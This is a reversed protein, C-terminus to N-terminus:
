MRTRVLNRLSRVVSLPWHVASQRGVRCRLIFLAPSNSLRLWISTSQPPRIYGRATNSSLVYCRYNVYRRYNKAQNLRVPTFLCIAGIIKSVQDM